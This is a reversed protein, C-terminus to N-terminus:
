MTISSNWGARATGLGIRDFVRVVADYGELHVQDVQEALQFLFVQGDAVSDPCFIESDFLKQFSFDGCPHFEEGVHLVFDVLGAHAVCFFVWEASVQIIEM